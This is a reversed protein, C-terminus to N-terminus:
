KKRSALLTFSFTYDCDAQFLNFGSQALRDFRSLLFKGSYDSKPRFEIFIQECRNSQISLGIKEHKFSNSSVTEILKDLGAVIDPGTLRVKYIVKKVNFRSSFSESVSKILINSNDM